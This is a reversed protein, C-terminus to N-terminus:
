EADAIDLSETEYADQPIEVSIQRTTNLHPKGPVRLLLGIIDTELNLPARSESNELNQPKGSGDIRYIILQPIDGLGARERREISEPGKPTKDPQESEPLDLFKDLPNQLSGISLEGEETTGRALRSRNIKILRKNSVQWSNKEIEGDELAGMGNLSSVIVNWNRYALTAEDTQNVQEFWNIFVDINKFVKSRHHFKMSRLYEAIVEFQINRYVLGKSKPTEPVSTLTDLFNTTTNINDDNIKKSEYFLTTENSIGSFDWTAAVAGQMRNKATISLFIAPAWNSIKPGINAPTIGVDEYMKIEERLEAEITALYRFQNMSNQTMWIRPLLEYGKRYGFWRGMQMLSDGMRTTRLFYTSVLGEITLGRSLTAGGIVIFAPSYDLKQKSSDPYLLRKFNGEDDFGNNSCNDICLHLGTHYSINGDQDLKIHRLNSLLENIHEILSEWAPYDRPSGDYDPYQENFATLSLRDTEKEYLQQCREILMNPQGLLLEIHDAISQHHAQKQSTHVLMSSPSTSQRIRRVASACLFWALSDVLSEATEVDDGDQMEKIRSVDDISIERLIDLTPLESSEDVHNVGSAGFILEPGFYSPSLPLTRIFSHPYLTGDGAENLINAYPTATYAVYNMTKSKLKTLEIICHNIATREKDTTRTNISAQDAEDDILLINMQALQSPYEELWQKLKTLRSKNKLSVTLYNSTNNIQNDTSRQGAPMNKRLHTLSHWQQTSGAQNLDDILRTQTQKRLNEITGTLVIFMNFGWDAAMAMLGAMNATKGSQVHGIVLGKIDRQEPVNGIKLCKLTNFCEQEISNVTQEPFGGETLSKRYKQWASYEDTPISFNPDISEAIVASEAGVYEIVRQNESARETTQLENILRGWLDQINSLEDPWGEEVKNELWEHTDKFIKTKFTKIGDWEKGAKRLGQAFTKPADYRPSTTDIPM